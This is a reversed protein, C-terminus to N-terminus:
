SAGAAGSCYDIALSETLSRSNTVGGRPQRRAAEHGSSKLDHHAIGKKRIGAPEEEGDPADDNAGNAYGGEAAVEQGGFSTDFGTPQSNWLRLLVMRFANRM